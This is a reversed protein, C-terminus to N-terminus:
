AKKCIVVKKYLFYLIKVLLGVILAWTWVSLGESLEIPKMNGIPIFAAWYYPEPYRGKEIWDLKTKRLAADKTMGTKLNRYFHAMIEATQKDQISWLTTVISQAGAYSFGRALSMIGEGRNVKGIGTECASLVVLESNLQMNYLESNYLWENEITDKIETFAIFSYDSMRDNVKGHTALHLIKYGKAKDLFAKETAKQGFLIDGGIISQISQVEEQTYYLPNLQNRKQTIDINRTALLEIQSSSDFFEPAVALVNKGARQTPKYDQMYKLVTASPAFNVSYNKLLFPFTKINNLDKPKETLLADFPVYGLDGDPVIILSTEKPLQNQIPQVIKQYLNYAAEVYQTTAKAAEGKQNSQTIGERCQNVWEKLPFDKKISTLQVNNQQIVMTYITSDGVFYEILAQNSKLLKQQVDELSINKTGYFFQYYQPYKDKLSQKFANYKETLDFIQNTKVTIISDIEKSSGQEQSLIYKERKFKSIQSQFDGEKTLISDPLNFYYKPQNKLLSEKLLQAKSKEFISFAMNLYAVNKTQNYFSNYISLAQEYLNYTYSSIDMISQADYINQNYKDVEDLGKEVMKSADELHATSKTKEFLLIKIELWHAIFDILDKPEMDEKSEGEFNYGLKNLALTNYELAKNLNGRYREMVAYHAYVKAVWYHEEGYVKQFLTLAKNYNEIAAKYNKQKTHIYGIQLYNRAAYSAVLNPNKSLTDLSKQYYFMASDNKGQSEYIDGITTLITLVDEVASKEINRYFHIAQKLLDLALQSSDTLRYLNAKNILIKGLHANNSPSVDIAKQYYQAAREFDGKGKNIIGLNLYITNFMSNNEGLHRIGISLAKELANAASNNKGQRIQYAGINNYIGLLNIHNQGKSEIVIDRAKNTYDIAKDYEQLASYVQGLNQYAAMVKFKDIDKSKDIRNIVDKYMEMAKEIMGSDLFTSGIQIQSSLTLVNSEGLHSKRINLAKDTLELANEFQRNRWYYTGLKHYVEAVKLNNDSILPLYGNLAKQLYFLASDNAKVIYYKGLMAQADFFPENNMGLSDIYIKEAKKIVGFAEPLKSSDMLIQAQKLYLAAQATDEVASTTFISSDNKQQKPRCTWCFLLVLTFALVQIFVKM